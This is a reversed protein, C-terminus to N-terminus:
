HRRKTTKAPETRRVVFTGANAQISFFLDQQGVTVAQRAVPQKQANYVVIIKVGAQVVPISVTERSFLKQTHKPLPNGLTYAQIYIPAGTDNTLGLWLSQATAPPATLLLAALVASLSRVHRRNGFM